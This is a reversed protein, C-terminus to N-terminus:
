SHSILGTLGPLGPPVIGVGAAAVVLATENAMVKQAADSLGRDVLCASARAWGIFGGCNLWRKAAEHLARRQAVAMSIVGMGSM